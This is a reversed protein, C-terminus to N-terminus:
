KERIEQNKNKAEELIKSMLDKEWKSGVKEVIKMYHKIYKMHELDIDLKTYHILAEIISQRARCYGEPDISKKQVNSTDMWVYIFDTYDEIKKVEAKIFINAQKIKYGNNKIEEDMISKYFFEPDNTLNIGVKDGEKIKEFLRNGSYIKSKLKSKEKWVGIPTILYDQKNKITFITEITRNEKFGIKNLNM